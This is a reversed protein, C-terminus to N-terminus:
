KFYIVAGIGSRLALGRTSLSNATADEFPSLKGWSYDVGGEAFLLFRDHVTVSAGVAVGARPSTETTKVEEPELSRSFGLVPPPIGSVLYSITTTTKTIRLSMRPAIYTKFRDVKSLTIVASVGTEGAVSKNEIQPSISYSTQPTPAAPVGDVFFELSGTLAEQDTSSWQFSGDGRLEIRDNIRWSVGVSSPSEVLLGVKRDQAVAPVVFILCLAFVLIGRSAISMRRFYIVDEHKERHRLSLM